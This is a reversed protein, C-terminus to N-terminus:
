KKLHYIGMGNFIIKEFGWMLYIIYCIIIVEKECGNLVIDYFIKTYPLGGIIIGAAVGIYKFIKEIPYGEGTEKEKRTLISNQVIATIIGGMFIFPLYPDLDRKIFYLTILMGILLLFIDVIMKCKKCGNRKLWITYEGIAFNLPILISILCSGQITFYKMNVM